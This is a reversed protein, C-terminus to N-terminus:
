TSAPAAPRGGAGLHGAIGAIVAQRDKGDLKVLERHLFDTCRRLTVQWTTTAAAKKGRIELARAAAEKPGMAVVEAQEREPLGALHSATSVAIRGAEVAQVLEPSGHELVRAAYAILRPSVRFIASVQAVSTGQHLNAGPHPAKGALMREQAEQEFQVKARAAAMARQRETLNRRHLNRSLVLALASGNADWTTFQPKVGAQRCARYRNRGDLIQGNPHLLIPERLGNRGIDAVLPMLQELTLLPFMGSLPHFEVQRPESGALGNTDLAM